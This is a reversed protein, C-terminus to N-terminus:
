QVRTNSGPYVQLVLRTNADQPATISTQLLYLQVVTRLEEPILLLIVITTAM